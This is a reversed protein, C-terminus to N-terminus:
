GAIQDLTSRAIRAADAVTAIRAAAEDSIDIVMEEEIARVASDRGLKLDEVIRSQPRIRAPDVGLRHALIWAILEDMTRTGHNVVVLGDVIGAMYDDRDDDNIGLGLRCRVVTGSGFVHGKRGIAFSQGPNMAVGIGLRVRAPIAGSGPRPPGTFIIRGDVTATRLRFDATGGRGSPLPAALAEFEVCSQMSGRAALVQGVLLEGPRLRYIRIGIRQGAKAQGVQRRFRDIAVVRLRKTVGLGVLEIDDDVRVTGFEIRGTVVAGDKVRDVQEIAMLFPREASVQVPHRTIHYELRLQAQVSSALLLLSALAIRTSASQKV